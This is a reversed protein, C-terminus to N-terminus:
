QALWSTIAHTVKESADQQVFHGADPISVLTLENDIWDWTGNWGAPLLAQDNKGFIALTPCEVMKIKTKSQDNTEETQTKPQKPYSVKYYNLMAEIDSNKFAHLYYPKASEDKVWEMLSEPTLDIHSEDKQFEEAYSSNEQQQKNNSLERFLGRPHPTSLVILKEVVKTVNMAVQWAIAGGWDHGILIAKKYGANNIVSIIDQILCSMKYNDVGKPKDSKNYGRLDVAAVKYHKSLEIMQHRWTFWFDPFGHMLVVLPGNGLTVYHIKVGDNDAYHHEVKDLLNQSFTLKLMLITVCLLWKKM